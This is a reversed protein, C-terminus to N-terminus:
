EGACVKRVDSWLAGPNGLGRVQDPTLIERGAILRLHALGEPSGAFAGTDSFALWQDDGYMVMRVHRKGQRDYVGIEGSSDATFICAGRPQMTVAELRGPLRTVMSAPRNSGIQWVRLGADGFALMGGTEDLAMANATEGRLTSHLRGSPLSWIQIGLGPVMGAILEGRGGVAKLRVPGATPVRKLIQYREAALIELMGGARGTGRLGVALLGQEVSGVMSQTGMPYVTVRQGDEDGSSEWRRVEGNHGITYLSEGDASFASGVIDRVSIKGLRSRAEGDVMQIGSLTHVAIMKGDPSVTLSAPAPTVGEPVSEVGIKVLQPRSAAGIDWTALLPRYVNRDIMVSSIILRKHADDWALAQPSFPRDKPLAPLLRWNAVDVPTVRELQILARKGSRSVGLFRPPTVPAGKKLRGSWVITGTTLNGELLTGSGTLALFAGTSSLVRVDCIERTLRIHSGVSKGTRADWAQIGRGQVATYVQDPTTMSIHSWAPPAGAALESFDLAVVNGAALLPSGAESGSLATGGVLSGDSEGTRPVHPQKLTESPGSPDESKM